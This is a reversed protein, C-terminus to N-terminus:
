TNLHQFFYTYLVILLFYHWFWMVPVAYKAGQPIIVIKTCTAHGALNNNLSVM